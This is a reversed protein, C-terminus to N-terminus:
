LLDYDHTTKTTSYKQPYSLSINQSDFIVYNTGIGFSSNFAIGSYQGASKIYECIFQTPIYELDAINPRIPRKLDSSFIGLLKLQELFIKLETEEYYFPSSLLRPNTLDLVKLDSKPNGESVYVCQGITPRVESLALSNSDTLYLYPIGRPNARGGKALAPPPAGMDDIELNSDSIRGRFLTLSPSITMSLQELIGFFVSKGDSESNIVEEAFSSGPFFRNKHMIEKKFESWLIEQGNENARCIHHANMTRECVINELLRLSDGADISFIHARSQLSDYCSSGESDSPPEAIEFCSAMLEEFHPTLISPNVRFVNQSFCYNCDGIAGNREILEVLFNDTFCNTCCHM